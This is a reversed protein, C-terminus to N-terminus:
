SIPVESQKVCHLQQVEAIIECCGIVFLASIAHMTAQLSGLNLAVRVRMAHELKARLGTIVAKLHQPDPSDVYTLPLPYHVCDYDTTYTM